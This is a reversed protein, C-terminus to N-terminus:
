LDKEIGFMSVCLLIYLLNKVLTPDASSSPTISRPTHTHAHTHAPCQIQCAAAAAAVSTFALPTGAFPLWRRRNGAASKMIIIIISESGVQRACMNVDYARFSHLLRVNRGGRTRRVM